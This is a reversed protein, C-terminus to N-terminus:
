ASGIIEAATDVLGVEHLHAERMHHGHLKAEAEVLTHIVNSAYQKARASLKLNKAAEEVIRILENGDKRNKGEATVDIKTACFGKRMVKQISISINKYGFEEGELSKIALSVKKEDAGLDLLAGLVMDGAVGAVQADIVVIKSFRTM